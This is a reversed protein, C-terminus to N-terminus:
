NADSEGYNFSISIRDKNSRNGEVNHKMWGPFIYLAGTKAGYTAKSATYYTTKEIMGVPIHYEAGDNREFQINGQEPDADVYYAGSFMSGLHHHLNNYAGPPNINIWINYLMPIKLGVQKACDAVETNLIGVLKDIEACEGPRIDHSQWGGYNSIVRGEPIRKQYEYAFKKIVSNDIDHRIASWLVSPFWLENHMAM